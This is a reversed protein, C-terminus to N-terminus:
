KDNSPIGSHLYMELVKGGLPAADVAGKGGPVFTMIAIRPREAPYLGIWWGQTRNRDTQGNSYGLSTGTKGLLKTGSIKRAELSTGETSGLLLGNHLLSRLPEPLATSKGSSVSGSNWLHGGNWLTCYARLIRYPSVVWDNTNGVMVRRQVDEPLATIESSDAIIGFDTLTQAFIEPSIRASLQRFYVNCSFAIAKTASVEGHGNRDWCGNPDNALTAPCNLVPFRNGHERYFAILSFAKILSGAPYKDELFVEPHVSAQIAGNQPDVVLVAKTSNLVAKEVDKQLSPIEAFITHASFVYSALIWCAFRLFRKISRM